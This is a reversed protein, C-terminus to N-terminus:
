FYGPFSEPGLVKKGIIYIIEIMELLVMLLNGM